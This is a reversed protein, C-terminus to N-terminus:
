YAAYLILGAAVRVEHNLQGDLLVAMYRTGLDFAWSRYFFRELGAGVSMYYGDPVLPYQIVGDVQKASVQALGIGANVFRPTKTRTGFYQYIQFGETNVMLTQRPVLPYAATFARTSDVSPSRTDLRMEEFSLGIAREYRMRYVLRLALVGGNGFEWGLNGTSALGGYTGQVGFGVQGARPLVIPVARAQSAVLVICSAFSAIALVRKM